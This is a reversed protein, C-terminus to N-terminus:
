DLPEDKYPQATKKNKGEKWKDWLYKGGAIASSTLLIAIDKKLNPIRIPPQPRPIM